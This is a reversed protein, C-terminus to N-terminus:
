SARGIKLEAELETIRKAQLASRCREDQRTENRWVVPAILLVIPWALGVGFSLVARSPAGLTLRREDRPVSYIRDYPNLEWDYRSFWVRAVAITAALYLAAIVVTWFAIAAATM